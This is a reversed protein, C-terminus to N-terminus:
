KKADRTRPELRATGEEQFSLQIWGLRYALFAGTIMLSAMLTVTTWFGRDQTAFIRAQFNMGLIGALTGIPLLLVTVVTLIRVVDNTKQSIQASYMEFSGLVLERANDISDIAREMQNWLTLFISDSEVMGFVCSIDPRILASYVERHPILLRRLAAIKQRLQRLNPLLLVGPQPAMARDDWSDVEKELREIARFYGTLHWDLMAALFSTGSLRGLQSDDRIQRDFSDLVEIAGDHVTVIWNRGVLFYLPQAMEDASVTVVRVKLWSGFNDVRPRARSDDEAPLGLSSIGLWSALESLDKQKSRDVDIWVVQSEVIATLSTESLAITRDSGNTDFLTIQMHTKTHM